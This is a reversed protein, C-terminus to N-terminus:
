TRPSRPTIWHDDRAGRRSDGEESPAGVVRGSVPLVAARDQRGADDSVAIQTDPMQWREELMADAHDIRPDLVAVMQVLDPMQGHVLLASDRRASCAAPSSMMQRLPAWPSQVHCLAATAKARAGSGETGMRRSTGPRLIRSPRRATGRDTTGPSRRTSAGSPGPSRSPLIGTVQGSKWRSTAGAIPHDDIVGRHLHGHTFDTVSLDDAIHRGGTHQHGALDIAAAIPLRHAEALGPCADQGGRHGPRRGQGLLEDNAAPCQSSPSGRSRLRRSDRLTWGRM